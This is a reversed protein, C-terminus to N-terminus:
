PTDPTPDSPPELRDAVQRLVRMGAMAKPFGVFLAAQLLTEKIEGLTAGCNLAGYIHTKLENDSGVSLLATLALLERTKLDLGPRAMVNDYAVDIVLDALDDDLQRLGREIAAAKDGWIQKRVSM